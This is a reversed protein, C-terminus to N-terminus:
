FLTRAKLLVVPKREELADESTAHTCRPCHGLLFAPTNQMGTQAQM